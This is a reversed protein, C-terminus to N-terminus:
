SSPSESPMALHEEEYVELTGENSQIAITCSECVNMYLQKTQKFEKVPLLCESCDM